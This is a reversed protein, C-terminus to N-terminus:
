FLSQKKLGLCCLELFCSSARNRLDNAIHIPWESYLIAEATESISIWLSTFVVVSGFYLCNMGLLFMPHFLWSEWWNPAKVKLLNNLVSKSVPTKRVVLWNLAARIRHSMLFFTAFIDNKVWLWRFQVKDSNSAKNNYHINHIHNGRKKRELLLGKKKKWIDIQPESIYRLSLQDRSEARFVWQFSQHQLQLELVKAM